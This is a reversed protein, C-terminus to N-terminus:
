RNIERKRRVYESVHGAYREVSPLLHDMGQITGRCDPSGCQCEFPIMEDTYLTAYDITIEEGPGIPRRAVIDLGELWANPDCAHNVPKWQSMDQEWMVWTEDTIPFAQRFFREIGDEDWHEMVHSRSVLARPQEEFPVVVEGTKFRSRAYLGFGTLPDFRVEIRAQRRKHRALAADLIQDVFGLHGAPDFQLIFDATGPDDPPYFMGCNANIELIFLEGQTNMRIDCRGYGAGNLGVFLKSSIDQLRTVLAQDDVRQCKMRAYEVWKMNEHKFSEGPPFLFEVPVYAVPKFPDRPNEAVLVSFERGDIFEEVLAAGFIKIMREAQIRLDTINTVRSAPTLLVSAYSSPHKVILPYRLHATVQELNVLGSITVGPPSGIGWFHCVRKMTERSPEYFGADAGTFPVNFRELAQVVEIGPRDEDWAGDCINLVVDFDRKSIELIEQVATAKHIDVTEWEHRVLYPTLDYPLEWNPDNLACIKM